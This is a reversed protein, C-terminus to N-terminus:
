VYIAIAFGENGHNSNLILHFIFKPYVKVM